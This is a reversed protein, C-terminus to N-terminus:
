KADRAYANHQHGDLERLDDPASSWARRRLTEVPHRLSATGPIPLMTPSRRLPWAIAVQDPSTGPRRGVASVSRGSPAWPLQRVMRDGLMMTATTV